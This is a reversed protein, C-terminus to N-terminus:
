YVECSADDRRRLLWAKDDSKGLDVADGAIEEAAHSAPNMVLGGNRVVLTDGKGRELTFSGSEWEPACVLAAGRAKCFGTTAYDFRPDGIRKRLNMGLAAVIVGDDQVDTALRIHVTRQRPHSKLHAADYVREWCTSGAAALAETLANAAAHTALAAALILVSRFLM